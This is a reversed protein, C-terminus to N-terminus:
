RHAARASRRRSDGEGRAHLARDADDAGTQEARADAVRERRAADVDREGVGRGGLQAERDVVAGAGRRSAVVIGRQDDHGHRRIDGGVDDLALERPM